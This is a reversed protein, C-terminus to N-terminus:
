KIVKELAKQHTPNLSTSTEIAGSVSVISVLVLILFVPINLTSMLNVQKRNLHMGSSYLQM